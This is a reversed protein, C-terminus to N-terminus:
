RLDTHINGRIPPGISLPLGEWKWDAGASALDRRWFHRWHQTWPSAWLSREPGLGRGGGDEAYNEHEGSAGWWLSFIFTGFRHLPGSWGPRTCFAGTSLFTPAVHWRSLVLVPLPEFLLSLLYQCFSHCSSPAFQTKNLRLNLGMWIRIM